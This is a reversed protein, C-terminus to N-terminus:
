INDLVNLGKLTTVLKYENGLGPNYGPSNINSGKLSKSCEPCIGTMEFALGLRSFKFLGVTYDNFVSLVKVKSQVL